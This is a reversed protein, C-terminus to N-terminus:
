TLLKDLRKAAVQFASDLYEMLVSNGNGIHAQNYRKAMVLYNRYQLTKRMLRSRQFFKPKPLDKYLNMRRETERCQLCLIDSCQNLAPESRLLAAESLIFDNALMLVANAQGIKGPRMFGMDALKQYLSSLNKECPPHDWVFVHTKGDV